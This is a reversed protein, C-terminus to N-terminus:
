SKLGSDNTSPEDTDGISEGSKVLTTSQDDGEKQGINIYRRRDDEKFAIKAPSRIIPKRM